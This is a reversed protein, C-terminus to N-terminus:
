FLKNLKLKFALKIARRGWKSNAIRMLENKMDPAYANKYMFEYADIEAMLTPLENCVRSYRGLEASAARRKEMAAPDRALDEFIKELKRIMIQSSFGEEIKRRCAACMREYAAPDELLEAIADAYQRVEEATFARSDLEEAESQLLPLVRGVTDDILEAQGGVDSTVVPKGMSLSEYATLALGEKLSCILTMASDKYYPRMEKQRGALYVTEELGDRQVALKLEEFQPGDGVVVFAINPIQKRVEKAIELMLFPRKQPHIRCPFLVIPRDEGIGLEKRVLGSEVKSADYLEQDVGIYLTEVSEPKRDFDRILVRRTRENCVYTKELVEGMAGATRAYGGNRWYWEEMHVYDIIALDPFEKRLWPVLYYGDYSNSLFLVDVDRSQIFYSIFEPFDKPELFSPLDFIDTVYEEFRQRWSQEGPVTTLISVEFRSKDIKRCVDLNFLDAGGMEMWPLLMMVHIKDHSKFVKRDWDSRKPAFYGGPASGCPFEKASVSTDVNKGAEEIKKKSAEWLTRDRQVSQQMGSASRRYWFRLGSLHVPAAGQSLLQLWLHWDEDYYHDAVAYGGVKELWQKRIAATCVLLNEDKMRSASFPQRWVYELSGFGVSDTYAWAAEPHKTLAFYTEELFTPAILDDADLPVVIETTSAKIGANRAASQGGNAQRKLVIREDAAALRKLLEVSGEDTSGDDVIIWEFWPFTQDMVCNFTQEFYKGANYYPTIISVLPMGGHTLGRQLLKRGPEKTYDFEM